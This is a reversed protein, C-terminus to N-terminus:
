VKTLHDIMAQMQLSIWKDQRYLLQKWVEVHFNKVPLRVIKKKKVAKETVYDPLFSVGIGQEALKCLLDAREMELIPQIEIAHRALHEDLLRRYSMGKETLLFPQGLLDQITLEPKEALPNQSSIVFHVQVKEESAIVYNMDYVQSDMTCIMDVENHDLLRFLEATGGTTVHLCVKPYKKRFKAFEEVILPTCLSDAMAVRIMGSPEYRKNAERVMEQSLHCINQAYSLVSKGEDTLSVNHGIREFLM